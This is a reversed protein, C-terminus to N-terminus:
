KVLSIVNCLKGILTFIPTKKVLLYKIALKIVRTSQRKPPERLVLLAVEELHKLLKKLALYTTTFSMGSAIVSGIIPIFRTYDEVAAEATFATLFAVVQPITTLSVKSVKEQVSFPLMAYEDSGEEPLGLQSRYFSSEKM